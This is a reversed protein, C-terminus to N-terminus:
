GSTESDDEAPIAFRSDHAILWRDGNRELRTEVRPEDLALDGLDVTLRAREGDDAILVEPDARDVQARLDAESPATEAPSPSDSPGSFHAFRMVEECSLPVPRPRDPNTRDGTLDDALARLQRALIRGVRDQFEVTTLACADARGHSSADSFEIFTEIADARDPARASGGCGALFLLASVGLGLSRSLAGRRM